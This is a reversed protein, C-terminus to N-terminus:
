RPMEQVRCYIFTEGACADPSRSTLPYDFLPLPQSKASALMRLLRGIKYPKRLMPVGRPLETSESEAQVIFPQGSDIARICEILDTGTRVAVEVVRNGSWAKKRFLSNTVVMDFPCFTKYLALASDGDRVCHVEHGADSLSKKLWLLQSKDGEVVLIKMKKGMSFSM